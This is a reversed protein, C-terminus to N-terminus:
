KIDLADCLEDCIKQSIEKQNIGAIYFKPQYIPDHNNFMFNYDVVSDDNIPKWGSCNHVWPQNYIFDKQISGIHGELYERAEKFTHFVNPLIKNHELLPKSDSNDYDSYVCKKWFICFIPTKTREVTTKEYIIPTPHSESFTKLVHKVYHFTCYGNKHVFKKCRKNKLTIAKCINM